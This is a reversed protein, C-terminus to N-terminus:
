EKLEFRVTPSWKGKREGSEVRVRWYYVGPGMQKGAMSLSAVEEDAVLDKFGEDKAVQMLYTLKEGRAGDWEFGVLTGDELSMALNAHPFVPQPIPWPNLLGMSVNDPVNVFWSRGALVGRSFRKRAISGGPLLPALDGPAMNNRVYVGAHRQWMGREVAHAQSRTVAAAPSRRPRRGWRVFDELHGAERVVSSYLACENEKGRFAKDRWEARCHLYAVGDGFTTDDEKQKGRVSGFSIVILAGPPMKELRPFVYTHGDQDCVCWGTADIAAKGANHLEIWVASKADVPLYMIESIFLSSPHVEAKAHDPFSSLCVMCSLSLECSLRNWMKLVENRYPFAAKDM